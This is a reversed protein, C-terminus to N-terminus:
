TLMIRLLLFNVLCAAADGPVKKPWNPCFQTFILDQMGLFM